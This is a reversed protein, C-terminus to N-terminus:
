ETLSMKSDFHIFFDFDPHELSSILRDVQNLNKHALILVAFKM